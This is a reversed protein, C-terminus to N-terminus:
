RANSRRLEFFERLHGAPFPFVAGAVPQPYNQQHCGAAVTLGWIDQMRFDRRLLRSIRSNEGPFMLNHQPELAKALFRGPDRASAPESHM